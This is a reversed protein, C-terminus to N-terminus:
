KATVSLGLYSLSKDSVNNQTINDQAVTLDANPSHWTNVFVVKCAEKDTWHSM